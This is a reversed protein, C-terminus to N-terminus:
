EWDQRVVRSGKKFDRAGVACLVPQETDVYGLEVPLQLSEKLMHLLYFQFSIYSSM